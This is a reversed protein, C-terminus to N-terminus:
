RVEFPIARQGGTAGRLKQFTSLVTGSRAFLMARAADDPTRAALLDQMLARENGHMQALREPPFTDRILGQMRGLGEPTVRLDVGTSGPMGPGFRDARGLGLVDRFARQEHPSVGNLRFGTETTPPGGDVGPRQIRSMTAGNHRAQLETGGEPLARLSAETRNFELSGAVPLFRPTTLAGRQQLDVRTVPGGEAGPVLPPTLQERLYAQYDARGQETSVDFQRREGEATTRLEREGSVQAPLPTGRLSGTVRSERSQTDGGTVTVLDGERQVQLARGQARTEEIRLGGAPGRPPRFRGGVNTTFESQLTATAGEPLTRPDQLDPFPREGARMAAFDRPPLELQTTMRGGLSGEVGAVFPVGLAGGGALETRVQVNVRPEQGPQASEPATQASISGSAVGVNFGAELGRGEGPVVAGLAAPSPVLNPLLRQQAERVAARGQEVRSVEAPREAAAPQPAPGPAPPPTVAPAPPPRAEFDSRGAHAAVAPAQSPADEATVPRPEVRPPPAVAPAVPAAGTDFGSEGSFGVAPSPAPENGVDPPSPPAEVPSIDAPPPAPVFGPSGIGDIAM